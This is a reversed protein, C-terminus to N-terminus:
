KGAEVVEVWKGPIRASINNDYMAECSVSPFYFKGLYTANLFVVFTKTNSKRIDFFTYIRDDRIDQYTPTSKTQSSFSDSLRMNIIEWGSPFIQTLAMNEYYGMLGPNSISVEAKFDTGQSIKSIDIKKNNMYKYKVSIKLNNEEFVTDGTIPTGSLTMQAYLTNKGTNAIKVKGSKEDSVDMNIHSTTFLSKIQKEPEDNVSYSYEILETSKEKKGIFTSLAVLSFATTQTSYWSSSNLNKSIKQMLAIAKEKENMLSLTLLVISEDRLQSGYYYYRGSYNDLFTPIKSIIDQATEIQGNLTYTAALLWQAQLSIKPMEKLRNMAGPLAENALALTFLRYAQLMDSNKHHGRFDKTYPNWNGATKQQYKIWNEKFNIPLSYGKEEAELMFHGVYNTVWDNTKQSTPWYKIGGNYSQYSRLKNIAIDINKSIYIKEDNSIEMLNELFLQPFVASTIQESCGFPYKHLYQLRKELGFPPTGFIDLNASNTGESGFLDFTDEWTKGAELVSNVVVTRPPNPNRVEIEINYESKESGCEAIVKVKGIGTKNVVKLDFWALKDGTETFTVNTSKKETTFFDNIELQLDVTKINEEMAFVNIPLKVTENPGLVRPLTALIMLPTKVPTTKQASGYAGYNGAVVMTRVSGIYNPIKFTHKQKEGAQLSFPGMFRVMAKFRNAKKAADKKLSEDGGIAFIQGLKGQFAGMVMNYMDWTKIGLAERAYFVKWPDPTKFNTLDLLGEDVIAITYTMAKGNKEAVILSAEEKPKLKSPMEMTPYLITAPNEVMVAIIGYLRIPLDNATQAHPQVLSINVYINPAMEATVEFEYLTEKKETEIWETKIIKSGSEISILARGTSSSPFTIKATEGVDYKQKDSSLSLMSASEPDSRNSRGVWEPWDMYFIKGASHGSSPDYVEVFYRGWEPYKIKFDFSGKGNKTSIIKKIVAKTQRRNIYSAVDDDSSNWWWHWDLKYINVSLNELSVPKGLEDLSAVEVTHTTDTLFLEYYSKSAKPLKIGIYNKYPSYPISFNDISFDGGEEFAKISFQAKLMGPSTKNKSLGIVVKAKGKGNVKDDFITKEQSYYHKAPNVFTFKKYDNFVTKDNKLSLDIKVKLNKAVAGFLWNVSLDGIITDESATIIKEGFDLDIKLRNPKVTEIKIKKSFTNGGIKIKATWNGTEAEQDTKTKFCYFGNLGNSKSIRDYLQGQATFLEFIVPHNEPLKNNKDEIICTIFLSDGPRWVGRDGYIYAKLGDKVKSGSVDFNSLSLSSGDDLRLYGRQKEKKAILLFPKNDLNITAFGNQDTKLSEMLQNQFNYIELETNQVPLCTNLNTITFLMSNDSNSKAIIGLDSALINQSLNRDSTYYSVDCPNDRERWSYGNPYYYSSFYGPGNWNNEDEFDSKEFDTIEPMSKNDKDDFCSYTSYEKPFSLILRYIAGEKQKILKALDISYTNWNKLGVSNDSELRITKRFIPRAVRNLEYAGNLENEQLFQAIDNEFIRIIELDVAKLNVAQFPFILEKSNPMIVGSKVSRLAPKLEDFNIEYTSKKTIKEGFASLVGPEINLEITGTLREDPYVQIENDQIILRIKKGLSLNILGTLDQSSKLANSFFIKISQSPEQIRKVDVVKFDDGQLMNVIEKQEFDIGANEGNILIEIKQKQKTRKLNEISFNFEKPKSDTDWIIKLNEGDLKATIIKKINAEDIVDASIISGELTCLDKSEETSKIGREVFSFSQKITQFDFKFIKLKKPVKELKAFNFDVKYITGSKLNEEPVFEITWKNLWRSSGKIKPSFEFLKMGSLDTKGSNYASNSSLLVKISSEVSIVDSTYGSIYSEFGPANKPIKKSKQTCNSLSFIIVITIISQFILKLNKM